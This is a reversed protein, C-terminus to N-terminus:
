LGDLMEDRKILSFHDAGDVLRVPAASPIRSAFCRADDPTCMWDGTGAIPLVPTEINWLADGYDIGRLSTWRGARSWGTLQKVYTAAEDATGLRLARIPAKGVLATVNRYVSMLARRRLGGGLWVATAPLVVLRPPPIARLGLAATVVLGGLSHAVIVDPRAAAVIAPLDFDVLDDFSWDALAQSRGHGRFDAVVVDYGRAALKGALTKFYRGDTMMAHLCVAVGRREGRAPTREAHLAVGDSTTAFVPASTSRPVSAKM